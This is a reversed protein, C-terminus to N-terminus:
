PIVQVSMGSCELGIRLDQSNATDDVAFPSKQEGGVTDLASDMSGAIQACLLCCSSKLLYQNCEWMNGPLM